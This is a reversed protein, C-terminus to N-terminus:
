SLQCVDIFVDISYSYIDDIMDKMASILSTFDLFVALISISYLMRRVM